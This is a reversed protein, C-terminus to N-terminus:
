ISPTPKATGTAGFILGASWASLYCGHFSEVFGERVKKGVCTGLLEFDCLAPSVPELLAYKSESNLTDRVGAHGVRRRGHRRTLSPGDTADLLGDDDGAGSDRELDPPHGRPRRRPRAACCIINYYYYMTHNYLLM